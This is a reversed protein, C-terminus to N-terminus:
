TRRSLIWLVVLLPVPLLFAERLGIQGDLWGLAAPACLIATGSALSGISASHRGSL